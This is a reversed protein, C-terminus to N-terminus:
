SKRKENVKSSLPILDLNEFFIFQEFSAPFGTGFRTSLIRIVVLSVVSIINHSVAAVDHFKFKVICTFIASM